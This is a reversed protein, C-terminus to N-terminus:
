TMTSFGLHQFSPLLPTLSKSPPPLHKEPWLLLWRRLSKAFFAEIPQNTDNAEDLKKHNEIMDFKDIGSCTDTLHQILGYATTGSYSTHESKLAATFDDDVVSLILEVHLRDTAKYEEFLKEEKGHM